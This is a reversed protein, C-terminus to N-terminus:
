PVCVSMITQLHAMSFDFLEILSTKATGANSTTSRYLSLILSHGEIRVLIILVANTTRAVERLEVKVHNLDVKMQDVKTDVQDIKTTLDAKVQDIKTTLDAKVEDIKTNMRDELRDLATRLADNFWPPAAAALTEACHPWNLYYHEGEGAQASIVSSRYTYAHAIDETTACGPRFM